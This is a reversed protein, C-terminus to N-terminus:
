NTKMFSNLEQLAKFFLDKSDYRGPSILTIPLIRTEKQSILDFVEFGTGCDVTVKLDEVHDLENKNKKFFTLLKRTLDLGGYNIKKRSFGTSFRITEFPHSDNLATVCSYFKNDVDKLFQTNTIKVKLEIESVNKIDKILKEIEGKVRLSAKSYKIIGKKKGLQRIYYEFDSIRPGNSNFEYMILPEKKSFDVCFHTIEALKRDRLNEIEDIDSRNNLFVPLKDRLLAIKGKIRQGKETYALSFILLNRKDDNSEGEKRDIVHVTDNKRDDILLNFLNKLLNSSNVSGMSKYATLILDFFHFSIEISKKESM